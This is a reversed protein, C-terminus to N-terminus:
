TRDENKYPLIVDIKIAQDSNPTVGFDYPGKSYLKFCRTSEDKYRQQARLADQPYVIPSIADEAVSVDSKVHRGAGHKVMVKKLRLDSLTWRNEEKLKALVKARGLGPHELHLTQLATVIEEDSPAKITTEIKAGEGQSSTSSETVITPNNAEVGDKGDDNILTNQSSAMTFIELIGRVQSSGRYNRRSM